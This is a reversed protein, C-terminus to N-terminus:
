IGVSPEFGEREALRKKLYFPSVRFFALLRPGDPPCILGGVGIGKRKRGNTRGRPDARQTHGTIERLAIKGEIM